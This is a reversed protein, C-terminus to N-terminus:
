RLAKGRTLNTVVSLHPNRRADAKYSPCYILLQSMGADKM